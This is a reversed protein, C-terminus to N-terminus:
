ASLAVLLENLRNVFSVPDELQEGEALLAQDFLVHTWNAFRADDGEAKLRQLISHNPNIEFVPKGGPLDKGAAKLLRRLSPDIDNDDAVICSPSSTLRNSVRVEKVKNQLTNKIRETLEKFEDASKQLEQKEQEDSMGALDAVGKSVSQLSKGKYEYMHSVMYNDVLDALLLVEVGKKRFIELLPSNKAAAFTEATIYYIDEQGEKMRSIYDDLSSEQKESDNLTTSFRLLRAINEKNGSDEGVGEKLASGFEQWFTAYKEKDNNSLDELFGLVKKVAGAKITEIVKNHQLIERSVNLPLDSSDVVGRVFRLYSPMLQEADDMIFVRRVYLKVGHRSDRNYLDFPARSPIYLLLTYEYKGEMRSHIRGLPDTFDHAVHKYFENYEEDTIENRSRAWLASAKNVTEDEPEGEETSERKMVIPLNIHDSYKRIIQRLSYGDLLEDEEARLHLVVDTGRLERNTNEITYEGNGDSEWHVGHEAGLGARRTIVTVKDAVIFSSYFGVGFQGILNADKRQDGTLAQFFERTGSKAITGINDIVEQRSMGIGNDSIAITRAEKDYSIRIKLDSDAEYLASDSLAEFRLKDVADSANSILERLFIEKNSYLSHIMLDLLQKVEAQFGLTEKQTEVSM